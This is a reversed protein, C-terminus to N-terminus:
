SLSISASIRTLPTPWSLRGEIGLNGPSSDNAPGRNWLAHQAVCLLHSTEEVLMGINGRDRPDVYLGLWLDDDEELIVVGTRPADAPLLQEAQDDEIVCHAVDFQLELEYTESFWRAIRSVARSVESLVGLLRKQDNSAFRRPALWINFLDGVIVCTGTNGALSRIFDAFGPLEADNELLHVDAVFVLDGM